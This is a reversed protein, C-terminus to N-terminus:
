QQGRQRAGLLKAIREPDGTQAARALISGTRARDTQFSRAVKSKSRSKRKRGPM